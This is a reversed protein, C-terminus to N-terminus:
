PLVYLLQDLAELKEFCDDKVMMVMRLALSIFNQTQSMM